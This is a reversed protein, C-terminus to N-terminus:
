ALLRRWMQPRLLDTPPLYDGTAALIADALAQRHRLVSAAGDMLPPVQVAAQILAEITHHGRFTARHLADYRALTQASVDGASLAAGAVLAVLQAGRLGRFIGEGTFPDYYGAADGVLLVGEASLRRARVSLRSAALVPRAVQVLALRDRLGPFTALTELLFAQPRGALSRGERREDVVLAVTCLDGIAPPELRAVGVYRRGAVHMEGYEGLGALGRLHAVLAVKRLPGPTHLGLRRAVLSHLGDAAILLRARLPAGATPTLLWIPAGDDGGPQRALQSLRWGERVEAGASRAARVLAMDLTLRPVSLATQYHSRGHADRLGAFDGSFASGDPAFIRFGRLRAPHSAEIEALAGVEALLPEVAPSLSEACPKDRPFTARDIVVVRWGARALHTASAAGAPGAGVIAVDYVDNVASPAGSADDAGAGIMDSSDHANM